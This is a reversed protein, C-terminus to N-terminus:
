NFINQPFQYICLFVVGCYLFDYDNFLVDFFYKKRNFINKTRFPKEVFRWSFWAIAISAICLFILFFDSVDGLLRHRAFALLPQHWLYASYSILGIGVIFKLSLLKHVFTNPVACLILLGTGITPILAYFSPFPTSKDFTFISYVIMAFGLLSLVQNVTNSKLHTNQKLYFAIFVGILLEWGRTPLLFFSASPSNYAGMSCSGFQSSFIALLLILISKIGFRWTLLLFLPFLIYFQEEVALSWTHLLPKLEAATDFYGSESWFLINSSFTSVAAM